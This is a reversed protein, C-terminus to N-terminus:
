VLLPCNRLIGNQQNLSLVLSWPLLLQFVMKRSWNPHLRLASGRRLGLATHPPQSKDTQNIPNTKPHNINDFEVIVRHLLTISHLLKYCCITKGLSGTPIKLNNHSRVEKMSYFNLQRFPICMKFGDSPLASLKRQHHWIVDHLSAPTEGQLVKRSDNSAPFLRFRLSERYSICSNIQNFSPQLVQYKQTVLVKGVRQYWFFPMHLFLTITACKPQTNHRFLTMVTCKYFLKSWFLTM